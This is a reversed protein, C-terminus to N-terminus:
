RRKKEERRRREKRARRSERPHSSVAPNSGSVTSPASTSGNSAIPPPTAAAPVISPMSDLLKALAAPIALPSDAERAQSPKVTPQITTSSASRQARITLADLMKLYVRTNARDLRRLREAASSDDFSTGKVAQDREYRDLGILAKTRIEELGDITEAVIERKRELTANRPLRATSNRFGTSVGLLDLALATQEETWDGHVELAQELDIWRELLWDCGQRSQRLRAVTSGPDKSLGQATKIAEVRRDEEWADLARRSKTRLMRVEMEYARRMRTQAIVMTEIMSKDLETTAKLDATWRAVEAQFAEEDEELRVVGAGSLGHTLANERSRKKGEETKPGTSRLANQRNAALKAESVNSAKSSEESPFDVDVSPTSETEEGRAYEEAFLAEASDVRPADEVAVMSM